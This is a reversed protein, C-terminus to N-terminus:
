RLEQPSRPTPPARRFWLYGFGAMLAGLFLVLISWAVYVEGEAQGPVGLLLLAGIGLFFLGTGIFLGAIQRPNGRFLILWAVM